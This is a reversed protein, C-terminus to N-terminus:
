GAGLIADIILLGDPNLYEPDHESHPLANIADEFVNEETIETLSVGADIARDSARKADGILDARRAFSWAEVHIGEAHLRRAIVWGDGGNNGPGCLVLVRLEDKALLDRRKIERVVAAGALEMVEGPETLELLAAEKVKHQRANLLEM